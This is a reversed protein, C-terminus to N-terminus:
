FKLNDFCNLCLNVVESRNKSNLRCKCFVCAVSSVEMSKEHDKFEDDEDSGSNMFRFHHLVPLYDAWEYNLVTYCVSSQVSEEIFVAVNDLRQKKHRSRYRLFDLGGICVFEFKMAFDM